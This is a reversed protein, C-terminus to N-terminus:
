SIQLISISAPGGVGGIGANGLISASIADGAPVNLLLTRSTSGSAQVAADVQVGDVLIALTANGGLGFTLDTTVSVQFVGGVTPTFTDETQSAVINTGGIVNDDPFAIAGGAAPTTGTGGFWATASGAPGQPGTPGQPGPVGQPGVPGQPGAPGQPGTAGGGAGLDVESLPIMLGVVDIVVHTDGLANFVSFGQNTGLKAIFLSAQDIGPTPNNASANPRSTGTPWITLFGTSTAGGGPITVNLVVSTTRPDIRGALAYDRTEGAKFPNPTGSRTDVIRTPNISVLTEVQSPHVLQAVQQSGSDGSSAWAAVAGGSAGALALCLGAVALPARRGGASSILSM